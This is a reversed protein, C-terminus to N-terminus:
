AIGRLFPRPDVSATVSSAGQDVEFHLHPGTSYGTSGEAGIVQGAQVVAGDPIAITALHGYRVFYPPTEIVVNNGFGTSGFEVHAIGAQVAYVPTGAPCALDIGTHMRVGNIVPEGPFTTPGWPQTVVPKCAGGFPDGGTGGGAAAPVRGAVYWSMATIGILTMTIKPFRLALAFAVAFPTV